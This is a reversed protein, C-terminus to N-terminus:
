KNIKVIDEVKSIGRIEYNMVNRYKEENIRKPGYTERISRREFARLREEDRSIRRM